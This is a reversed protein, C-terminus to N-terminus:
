LIRVLPSSFDPFPLGAYTADLKLTKDNQCLHLYPVHLKPGGDIGGDIKYGAFNPHAVNIGDMAAVLEPCLAAMSLNESHAIYIDNTDVAKSIPNRWCQAPSIEKNANIDYGVWVMGPQHTHSIKSVLEMNYHHSKVSEHRTKKYGEPAEIVHWLGDFTISIGYHIYKSNPNKDPLYIALVPIESQTIPDFRSPEVPVLDMDFGWHMMHNFEAARGHQESCNRRLRDFLILGSSSIEVEAVATNSM